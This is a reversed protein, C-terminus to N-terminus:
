ENWGNLQGEEEEWAWSEFQFYDLITRPAKGTISQVTDTVLSTEKSAGEAYLALADDILFEPVHMSELLQRAVAPLVPIYETEKGRTETLAQAVGQGDLAQPGTLMYTQGNHGTQTLTVAAVSAIDRADIMAVARGGLPLLLQNTTRIMDAYVRVNQMLMFLPFRLHTYEMSTQELMSEGASLMRGVTTEVAQDAASGSLNVMRKVGASEASEFFDRQLALADVGEDMISPLILVASTVGDMAREVSERDEFTSFVFEVLQVQDPDSLSEGLWETLHRAGGSSPVMARVRHGQEALLFLLERGIIGLASSVLIM